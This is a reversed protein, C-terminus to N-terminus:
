QKLYLKLLNILYIIMYLFTDSGSFADAVEIEEVVRIALGDSEKLLIEISEVKFDSAFNDQITSTTLGFAEPLELRFKITSVQNEMFKVVGSAATDREDRRANGGIPQTNAPPDVSAVLTDVSSDIFYGYQKPVFAAQTFPAMLSYEGDDYKFRYSFRIFREKLYDEDGDYDVNYEPNEYFFALVDNAFREIM